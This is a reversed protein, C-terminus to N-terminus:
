SLETRIPLFNDINLDIGIVNLEDPSSIKDKSVPKTKATKHFPETSGIQLSVFYRNCEDKSVTITGIRTDSREFIKYIRNSGKFRMSGLKPLKIHRKDTMYVNGDSILVADKSYQANTQYSAAYGKKHFTPISTGPVTKFQKWAKHYNQVANAIALSDIRSDSLFPCSEKFAASSEGLSELYNIRNAVPEVFCGTKRLFFPEKNHAVLRNYVYRAAGANIAIMTKQENTPYIRLKIGIVFSMDKMQLM